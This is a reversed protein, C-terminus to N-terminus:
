CTSSRRRRIEAHREVLWSWLRGAEKRASSFTQRGANSRPPWEINITRYEM